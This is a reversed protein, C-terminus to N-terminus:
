AGIRIKMATRSVDFHKALGEVDPGFRKLADALAPPPILLDVAFRNAETEEARGIRVNRFRGDPRSRYARGEDIGEGLLHRHLMYHGIEHAVTFRQRTHVHAENVIIEYSDEGVRMIMGSVDPGLSSFRVPAGLARALSVVDVPVSRRADRVMALMTSFRPREPRAAKPRRFETLSSTTPEM